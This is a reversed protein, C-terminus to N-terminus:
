IIESTFKALCKFFFHWWNEAGEELFYFCLSCKRVYGISSVNCESELGFLSMIFFFWLGIERRFMCAFNRLLINASRIWYHIFFNSMM